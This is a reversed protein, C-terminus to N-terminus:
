RNPYAVATLYEVRGAMEGPDLAEYILILSRIIRGVSLAGLPCYAIGPHDTTGQAIRLFESDHTVIVRGSERAFDLHREDSRTLLGAQTTTTVDIGNKRLAVAIAPPIHEDLHFRIREAV